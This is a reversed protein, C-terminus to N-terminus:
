SEEDTEEWADAEKVCNDCGIIDGDCMYFKDCENDCKPCRPFKVPHAHGSCLCNAIGYEDPINAM